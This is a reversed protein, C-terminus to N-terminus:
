RFDGGGVLARLRWRLAGERSPNPSSAASCPLKEAGAGGLRIQPFDGRNRRLLRPRAGAGPIEQPPQVPSSGSLGRSSVLPPPTEQAPQCTLALDRPSQNTQPVPQGRGGAGPIDVGNSRRSGGPHAAPLIRPRLWSCRSPPPASGMAGMKSRSVTCHRRYRDPRRGTSRRQRDLPIIQTNTADPPGALSDPGTIALLVPTAGSRRARHRQPQRHRDRGHFGHWTFAAACPVQRGRPDEARPRTRM